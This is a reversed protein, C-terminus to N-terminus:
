ILITTAVDMEKAEETEEVEVPISLPAQIGLEDFVIGLIRKRAVSDSSLHNLTLAVVVEEEPLALVLSGGLGAHGISMGAEGNSLTFEHLQFGLGFQAQADNLMASEQKSKDGDDDDKEKEKGTTTRSPTRALELIERSLLPESDDDRSSSSSSSRIVADFVEALAQASAHGNASPLKAERVKRMNFVSPNMLQQLGRYKELVKKAKKRTEEESDEEDDKAPEDKDDKFSEQQSRPQPKSMEESGAMKKEAQRRDVSLVALDKHNDVDKSIGALFLGRRINEEGPFNDKNYPLVHDLWEEYPKGTVAEILGGV